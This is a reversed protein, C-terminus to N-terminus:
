ARDIDAPEAEAEFPVHAPHVVREAVHRALRDVALMVVVVQGKAQEVGEVLIEDQRQAMVLDDVALM